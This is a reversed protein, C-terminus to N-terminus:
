VSYITPLTLHTYSVPTTCNSFFSRSCKVSIVIIVTDRMFIQIYSLKLRRKFVPLSSSSTVDAPLTNWVRAATVGFARDGIVRRQCTSHLHRLPACDDDHTSTQWMTCSAHLTHRLVTPSCLSNLSLGNPQPVRLWHILCIKSSCREKESWIVASELDQLKWM